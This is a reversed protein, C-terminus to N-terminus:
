ESTQKIGTKLREILVPKTGSVPLGFGTLATKLEDITWDQYPGHDPPVDSPEDPDRVEARGGGKGKPYSVIKARAVTPGGLRSIKGM